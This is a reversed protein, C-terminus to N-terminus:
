NEKNSNGKGVFAFSIAIVISNDFAAIIVSPLLYFM